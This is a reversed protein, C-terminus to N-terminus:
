KRRESVILLAEEKINEPLHINRLQLSCLWGAVDEEKLTYFVENFLEIEQHTYDTKNIFQDLEEDEYYVIENKHILLSDNQCVEHAGCCDSSIISTEEPQIDAKKQLFKLIFIIITLIILSIFLIIMFFILNIIFSLMRYTLEM